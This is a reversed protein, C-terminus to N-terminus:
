YLNNFFELNYSWINQYIILFWIKYEKNGM